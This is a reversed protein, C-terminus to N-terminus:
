IEKWKWKIEVDVPRVYNGCMQGYVEGTAINTASQEDTDKDVVCLEDAHIFHDGVGLEAFDVGQKKFKPKPTVKVSM